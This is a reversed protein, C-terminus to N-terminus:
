NFLNTGQKNIVNRQKKSLVRVHTEASSDSEECGINHDYLGHELANRFTEISEGTEGQNSSPTKEKFLPNVRARDDEM